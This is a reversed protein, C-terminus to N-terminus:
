TFRAGLLRKLRGAMDSLGVIEGVAGMQIAVRPMGFVVCSREDQAITMAGAQRLRHMGDAGDAGMGTLLVALTKDAIPLASEFLVDISPIHQAGAPQGSLSLVIGAADPIVRVHWGSPGIYVTGPVCREGHSAERVPMPLHANLRDAFAKTFGASMHQVIVVPVPPPTAMEELIHQIAPPGGTSAGLVVIHFAGETNPVLAPTGVFAIGRSAEVQRPAGSGHRTVSRIKELLTARMSRFDVLSFEQKDIFDVAGRHLAELTLPADRASHTSLIIVPVRRWRLVHDLTELGGLGPMSLDLTIVDPKWQGLNALLEEGSSALGVVVLAPEDQLLRALAKRMFSSDDVIAVRTRRM